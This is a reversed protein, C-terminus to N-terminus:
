LQSGLQTQPHHTTCECLECLDKIFGVNSQSDCQFVWSFPIILNCHDGDAVAHFANHDLHCLKHAELTVTLHCVLDPSTEDWM